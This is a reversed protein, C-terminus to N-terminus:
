KATFSGYMGQAYHGPLNCFMVYSGAALDLTADKTQGPAVEEIEGANEAGQNELAAEDVEGGAVPLSAPDADTRFLVLEHEVQGINPASVTVSGADATVDKPDFFFDGMKVTTAGGGGAAADTEAATTTGNGDDDDDGCGFAGAALALAVLMFLISRSRM